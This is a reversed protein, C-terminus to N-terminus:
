EQTVLLDRLATIKDRLAAAEEFRLEEAAQFMERELGKIEKALKKPDRYEAPEEAVGPVGYYDKECISGLVTGIDKVITRPTIGHEENYAKQKERRRRTEGVAGRIANTERDAYLIARGEVHRAARGMTQILAWRSRLFGEKDADLIAVRSVEPLDLGERLLNVGVLVEHVGKRLDRLIKVRELTQIDSHLYTVKLGMEKYYKTLEEAMKKTMTTVLVRQGKGTVERCERYLDEVQGEAPRIDVEPDMLGTPRIVQEATVGGAAELEFPGPTASVYVIQPAIAYFEEFRLPRNDLACPLRFGYDVLTSKRSRDGKSMAHLQPVTMHSEDLFVLADTPLYEMLTPPPEGPARGTLLRSYNEIGPCTGVELLIELDYQTRQALRQAELLRGQGELEALRDKLEVKAAEVAALIQERPTAYHSRPYITLEELKEQIEGTLPDVQLIREIEEDFFEIRYIEEGYSPFVELVDGRVRFRGRELLTPTRTYLIDVLKRLLKQRDMRDGVKMPITMGGFAEPAGLGYICSVSAVIIVDRREMLSKTARLRLRDIEENIDAEKEIFTDSSPLYAEPQYYDYYSVFYEVANKPFFQRLESFLQAALTKNHAILLAPRNLKEILAAMTFTKGSGTVGLLVSDHNGENIRGALNEIAQPQDGTAKFPAELIFRDPM